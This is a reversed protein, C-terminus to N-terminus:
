SDAFVPSFMSCIKVFTIYIDWFGFMDGKAKVFSYFYYFFAPLSIFSLASYYYSSDFCFFGATFTVGGGLV